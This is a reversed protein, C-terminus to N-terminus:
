DEKPLLTLNSKLLALCLLMRQHEIRETTGIKNRSARKSPVALNTKSLTPTEETTVNSKSLYLLVGQQDNHNSGGIKNTSDGRSLIALPTALNVKLLISALPTPTGRDQPDTVPLVLVYDGRKRMLLFHADKSM